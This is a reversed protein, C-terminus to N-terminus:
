KDTQAYCGTVWVQSFPNDRIAKRIINRNKSDAKNTVTCTNIVIVEPKLSLSVVEFGEKQMSSALGDSEFINLRCGLTIFGITKKM